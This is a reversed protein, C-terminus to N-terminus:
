NLVFLMGEPPLKIIKAFAEAPIATTEGGIQRVLPEHIALVATFGRTRDWRVMAVPQDEKGEDLSKGCKNRAIAAVTAEPNPTRISIFPAAAMRAAYFQDFFSDLVM